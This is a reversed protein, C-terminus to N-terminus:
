ADEPPLLAEIRDYLGDLCPQPIGHHALSGMVVRLCALDERTFGFPTGVLCMAATAHDDKDVRPGNGFHQKWEEPTM